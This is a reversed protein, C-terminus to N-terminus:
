QPKRTLEVGAWNLFIDIDGLAHVKIKAEGGGAVEKITEEIIGVQISEAFDFISRMEIVAHTDTFEALRISGLNRSQMFAKVFINLAAKITGGSLTLLTRGVLSGQLTPIALQALQKVALRESLDPYAGTACAHVVQIHERMSYFKFPIYRQTGYSKGTVKSAQKCCPATYMGRMLADSPCAEIMAEVGLPALWNPKEFSSLDVSM